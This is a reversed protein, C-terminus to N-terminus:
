TMFVDKMSLEAEVIGAVIQGYATGDYSESGYSM